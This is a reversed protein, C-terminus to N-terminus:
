KTEKQGITAPPQIGLQDSVYRNKKYLWTKIYYLIYGQINM